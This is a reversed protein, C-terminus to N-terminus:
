TCFACEENLSSTSQLLELWPMSHMQTVEFLGHAFADTELIDLLM